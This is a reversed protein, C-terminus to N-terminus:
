AALVPIKKALSWPESNPMDRRGSVPRHFDRTSSAASVGGTRVFDRHASIQPSRPPGPFV